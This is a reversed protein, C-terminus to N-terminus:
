SDSDLWCAMVPFGWALCRKMQRHHIQKDVWFVLAM